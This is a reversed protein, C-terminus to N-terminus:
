GTPVHFGALEIESELQTLRARVRGGSVREWGIPSPHPSPIILRMKITFKFLLRASAAPEPWRPSLVSPGRAGPRSSDSYGQSFGIWRTLTGSGGERFVACRCLRPLGLVRSIAASGDGRGVDPRRSSRRGRERCEKIPEAQDRRLELLRKTM